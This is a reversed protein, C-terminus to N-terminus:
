KNKPFSEICAKCNTFWFDLFLWKGKFSKETIDQQHFYRVRDLHFSPIPKGIEPLSNEISDKSFISNVNFCFFLIISIICKMIKSRAWKIIKLNADRM